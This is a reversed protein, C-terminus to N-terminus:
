MKTIVAYGPGDNVGDQGGSDRGSNFSGGGGGCSSGNEWMGMAGGSYGGGGGGGYYGVGGGGFGGDSDKGAQKGGVGGNVFAFGGRFRGGHKGANGRSGHGCVGMGSGGNSVLGGGGGGGNMWCGEGPDKAGCGARGGPHTQLRGFGAQGSEGTTGDCEARHSKLGWVGAGGGAGGAVILPSDDARTVFTGGGGGASLHRRSGLGEQGVLIKLVDGEQLQFTGSVLAGRGRATGAQGAAAGAVEISYNGTEPVTFLQIGNQLTVLKEHDQGRYHDGLSTPGARGTAGLTTFTATQFGLGPIRDSVGTNDKECIVKHLRQCPTDKWTKLWAASKMRVCDADDGPENNPEGWWWDSFGGLEEGDEWVFTGEKKVDTLGIWVTPRTLTDSINGRWRAQLFWVMWWM